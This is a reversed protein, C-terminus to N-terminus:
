NNDETDHYGRQYFFTYQADITGGAVRTIFGGWFKNKRSCTVLVPNEASGSFVVPGNLNVDMGEDILIMTGERVTLSGASEIELNGTIRVLSNAPIEVPSNIIGKLEMDTRIVKSPSATFQKGGVRFDVSGSIASVPISVSGVGQKINFTDGTATCKGECYIETIIGSGKVYFIFPMRISDTYRQPYYMEVDEPGILVPVFPDPVWARIGWESNEREETKTTFLITDNELGADNYILVLEYFGNEEFEIFSGYSLNIKRNNLIASHIETSDNIVAFPLYYDQRTKLDSLSICGEPPETTEKEEKKRCGTLFFILIFCFLLNEIKM